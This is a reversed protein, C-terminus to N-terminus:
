KLRVVYNVVTTKGVNMVKYNGGKSPELYRVQGTKLEVREKKGDPYIREITGGQLTRNVRFQTRDEEGIDGPRYHNETVRVKNNDLLVKVTAKGKEQAIATSAAAVILVFASALLGVRFRVSKTM